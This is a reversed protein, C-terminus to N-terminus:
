QGRGRHTCVQLELQYHRSHRPHLGHENHIHIVPIQCHATPRAIDATLNKIRAPPVCRTLPSHQHRFYFSHYNLTKDFMFVITLQTISNKFNHGIKQLRWEILECFVATEM